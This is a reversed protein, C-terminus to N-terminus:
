LANYLDDLAQEALDFEWYEMANQFDGSLSTILDDAASWNPDDAQEMADLKRTLEDMIRDYEAQMSDAKETLLYNDYTDNPDTTKWNDYSYM